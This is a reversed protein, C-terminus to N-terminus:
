SLVDRLALCLSLSLSLSLTHSREDAALMFTEAVFLSFSLVESRKGSLVFELFSWPVVLTSFGARMATEANSAFKLAFDSSASGEDGFRRNIRM